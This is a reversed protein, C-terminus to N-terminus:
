HRSPGHSKPSKGDEIIEERDWKPMFQKITAEKGGMRLMNTVREALVSMLYDDREGGIPGTIFEYAQWERLEKSSM